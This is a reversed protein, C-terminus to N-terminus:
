QFLSQTIMRRIFAAKVPVAKSTKGDHIFCESFTDAFDESPSSKAYDDVFGDGRTAAEWETLIHPRDHLLSHALEHYVSRRFQEPDIREGHYVGKDFVVIAGQAPEYKSHGPAEPPADLLVPRRIITKFNPNEEVFHKPLPALIKELERTENGSWNGELEIGRINM